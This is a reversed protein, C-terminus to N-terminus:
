IILTYVWLLMITHLFQDFGITTFFGLNPFDDSGMMNNKHQYSTIKSTFFDVAFHLLGSIVAFEAAAKITFEDNTFVLGTCILFLIITYMMIHVSLKLINNSKGRSMWNNQFLFDAVFHALLIITIDVISIM